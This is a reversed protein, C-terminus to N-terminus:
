YVEESDTYQVEGISTYLKKDLKGFEFSARPYKDRQAEAFAEAEQKSGLRAIVKVGNQIVVYAKAM